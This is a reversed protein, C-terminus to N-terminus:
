DNELIQWDPTITRYVIDRADRTSIMGVPIPDDADKM